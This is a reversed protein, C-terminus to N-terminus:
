FRIKQYKKLEKYKEINRLKGFNFIHWSNSYKTKGNNFQMIEYVATKGKKFFIVLYFTFTICLFLEWSCIFNGLLSCPFCRQLMYKFSNMNKVYFPKGWILIFVHQFVTHFSSFLFATHTPSLPVGGGCTACTLPQRHHPGTSFVARQTQGNDWILVKRSETLWVLTGPSYVFSLNM